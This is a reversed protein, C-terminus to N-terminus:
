SVTSITWQGEGTRNPVLTVGEPLTTGIFFRRWLQLYEAATLRLTHNALPAILNGPLSLVSLRVIFALTPTSLKWKWIKEWGSPKWWYAPSVWLAQDHFKSRLWFPFIWITTVNTVFGKWCFQLGTVVFCSMCLIFQNSTLFAPFLKWFAGQGIMQHHMWSFFRNRTAYTSFWKSILWIKTTM